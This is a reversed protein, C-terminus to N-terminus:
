WTMSPFQVRAMNNLPDATLGGMLNARFSVMDGGVGHLAVSGQTEHFTGIRQGHDNHLTEGGGIDAMTSAIRHGHNDFIDEGGFVNDATHGTRQGHSDYIDEGGFVNDATHGMGGGDAAYYDHGGFVNAASHDFLGNLIDAM